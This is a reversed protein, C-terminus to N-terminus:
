REVETGVAPVKCSPAASKRRAARDLVQVAITGCAATALSAATGWTELTAAAVAFFLAFGGMGVVLGRLAALAAGDGEIHHTFAVVVTVYVPSASLLGSREPGLSEALGTVLLVMATAAAMRLPLDWRPPPACRRRAPAAPLMAGVLVVAGGVLLVRELLGLSVAGLVVAAVLYAAWGAATAIPWEHRLAAVGYAAVFASLGAVGLLIGEATGAAFRPGQEAALFAVVPGSTLPLGVLAGATRPGWRRGALSVALILLPALLVKLLVPM